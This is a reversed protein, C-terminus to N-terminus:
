WLKCVGINFDLFQRSYARERWFAANGTSNQRTLRNAARRSGTTMREGARDDRPARQVSVAQSTAPAAHPALKRVARTGAL